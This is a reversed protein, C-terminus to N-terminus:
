GQSDSRSQAARRTAVMDITSEPDVLIAMFLNAMGETKVVAIIEEDGIPQSRVIRWRGNAEQRETRFTYNETAVSPAYSLMPIANSEGRRANVLDNNTTLIHRLEWDVVCPRGCCSDRKDYYYSGRKEMSENMSLFIAEGVSNEGIYPQLKNEIAESDFTYGDLWRDGQITIEPEVQVPTPTHKDENTSVSAFQWEGANDPWRVWIHLEHRM